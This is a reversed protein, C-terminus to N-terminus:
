TLLRQHHISTTVCQAHTMPIGIEYYRIANLIKLTQGMNVFDIPNYLDLFSRGFKAAKPLDNIFEM